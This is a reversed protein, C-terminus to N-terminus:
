VKCTGGPRQGGDPLLRSVPRDGGSSRLIDVRVDRVVVDSTLEKRDSGKRLIRVNTTGHM